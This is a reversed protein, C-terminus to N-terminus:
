HGHGQGHSGHGEGGHSGDDHEEGEDGHSHRPKPQNEKKALGPPVHHM